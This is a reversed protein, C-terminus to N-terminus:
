YLLDINIIIFFYELIIKGARANNSVKGFSDKEASVGSNPSGYLWLM